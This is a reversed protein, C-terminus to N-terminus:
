TVAGAPGDLHDASADPRLGAQVGVGYTHQLLLEAEIDGALAGPVQVRHVAASEVVHDAQAVLGPFGKRDERVLGPLDVPADGVRRHGPSLSLVPYEAKWRVAISMSVRM